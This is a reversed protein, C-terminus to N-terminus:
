APRGFARRRDVALLLFMGLGVATLRADTLWLRRLLTKVTTMSTKM